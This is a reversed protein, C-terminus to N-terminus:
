YPPNPLPYSKLPFPCFIRILSQKCLKLLKLDSAMRLQPTGSNPTQLMQSKFLETNTLYPFIM